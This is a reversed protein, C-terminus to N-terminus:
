RREPAKATVLLAALLGALLMTGATSWLVVSYGDLVASDLPTDEVGHPLADEEATTLNPLVHWGGALRATVDSPLVAGFLPLAAAAGAQQVALVTAATGGVDHPAAGETGHVAVALLPVIAVGTGLGVLLTGPLAETVPTRHPDLGTLVALGVATVVLGPVILARPPLVHHLRASVQTSVILVVGTTLVLAPGIEGGDYGHGSGLYRHLLELVSYLALGTLALVLLAGFRNRDKLLSWPILAHAAKSQWRAFALLLAAGGTLLALVPPDTWGRPVSQGFGHLLVVLGGTGLLVGPVDVRVPRRVWSDRVLGWTAIMIVLAPPVGAYLAGRWNLTAVLWQHAYLSLVLGGVTAAAYVGFARGRERPDTFYLSVLALAASSLLAASGGLAANAWALEAPGTALGGFWSAAAVGAGGFLLLRRRGLLDALHGGSLLLLAFALGYATMLTPVYDQRFGLDDAIVPLARNLATTGILTVWQALVAAGLAFWRWFPPGLADDPVPPTVPAPSAPARLAFWRWFPPDPVRAPSPPTGPGPTAPATPTYAPSRTPAARPQVRPDPRAAPTGPDFDLLRGAHRALRALVPGPLWEEVEDVATRAAVDAPTPRRDPDKHLCARVLEVFADPVGTLDAEEEAVRFLHANLGTETAGFLLRGTSAYVLLAGLCFVDSAPTLGIGRVQEPSMFGPSGILMGTRTHLSDGGVADMARAIGFDIVRPGDVTVMVNSPKLDRHILGAGHVSRLAVALRNALVRVSHEPLPGFETAVVTALDPGPVYQTAVWPVQAETDADLVDATWPGGVRRAAAVERAFRRRFEPHHAHEARVVKVAVTRGTESRGLYVQGMGGAGLRAVLRYPGVRWPDTTTLQDM